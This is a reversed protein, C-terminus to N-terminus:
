GSNAIGHRRRAFEREWQLIRGSSNRLAKEAMDGVPEPLAFLPNPQTRLDAPAMWVNLQRYMVRVTRLDCSNLSSCGILCCLGYCCPYEAIGRWLLTLVESTRHERDICARGLEPM